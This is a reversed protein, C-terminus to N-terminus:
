KRNANLIEAGALLLPGRGHLDDDFREREAYYDFTLGIGTGRVTGNLKGETTVYKSSVGVFAKRAVAMDEAPLWGRNVGRAIAYAFLLSCSTEQWTDPHDVINHWVGSEPQYKKLGAVHRRYLDLLAARDPHDEPLASLVEALTVLVWGNARGWKYPSHQRLPVSYAHFWVGDADELRAAMNLIQHAADALHKGNKTYAAWRVLFPCSMYLDDAWVTGDPWTKAQDSAAARWFTGDPLREQRDTIWGAVREVVLKEEPTVREPYRLMGELFQVGMAGCNDLNGLRVLRNIVVKQYDRIFGPWEPTDGAVRQVGVLWAHYRAVIRNHELVWDLVAHDGTVDSSRIVGYLTVGWPYNWDIGEPARAAEAAALSGVPTYNGEKLPGLQEVQRRAVIRLIERISADTKGSLDPAPSATEPQAQSVLACCLYTLAFRLLTFPLKM